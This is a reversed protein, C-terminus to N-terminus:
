SKSATKDQARLGRQGSTGLAMRPERVCVALPGERGELDKGTWPLHGSARHDAELHLRRLSQADRNKETSLPTASAHKDRTGVKLFTPSQIDCFAGATLHGCSSEAM